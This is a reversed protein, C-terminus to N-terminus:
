NGAFGMWSFRVGAGGRVGFDDREVTYSALGQSDSFTTAPDSLLWLFRVDVYLSTRVPRVSRFLALALELGAGLSHDTITTDVASRYVEFVEPSLENVTTMRGVLDIKEGSYAVSPKVQLLLSKSMPVNFAVGLAAYWSPSLLDAEIRSGQGEFEGPEATSCSSPISDECRRAIEQELRRQFGDIDDEASGDIDGTNFINDSSFPKFGAGGRVFLRPRGPLREFAPGMLEGGIQFTFQNTPNTQTGEQAPPNLHNEVTAAAEYAFYDFGLDISPIWRPEQDPEAWAAQGALCLTLLIAGSSGAASWGARRIGASAAPADARFRM